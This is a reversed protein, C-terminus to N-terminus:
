FPAVSTAKTAAQMEVTNENPRRASEPNGTSRASPSLMPVPTRRLRM